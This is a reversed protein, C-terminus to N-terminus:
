KKIIRKTFIAGSVEKLTLLYIGQSLSSVDVASAGKASLVLQGLQNYIEITAISVNSVINLIGNTPNPYVSVKDSEFDDVSLTEVFTTAATNTIVPPNFDFFISATANVVNGVVVNNRPKIKYAIYGHSNPEDHTSDPLNIDNFIFSVESGNHITVRGPHSLSELQMTTWDQNDDLINDVRVNIAEATGTTRFASM